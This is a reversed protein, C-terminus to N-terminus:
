RRNRLAVIWGAILLAEGVADLLYIPAIRRKAVYVVDVATLVAASGVALLPIEPTMRRRFGAVALVAGVVAILLGVTKVLWRDAKPGTVQEFTTISVLPWIGTVIYYIAQAMAVARLLSSNPLMDLADPTHAHRHEARESM